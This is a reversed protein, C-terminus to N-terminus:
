GLSFFGGGGFLFSGNPKYNVGGGGGGVNATGGSFQGSDFRSHDASFQLWPQPGSRQNPGDENDHEADSLNNRVIDTVNRSDVVLMRLESAHIEGALARLADDLSKQDLATVENVVNKFDGTAGLKVADLGEGAAVGNPTTATGG